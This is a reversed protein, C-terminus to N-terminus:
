PRKTPPSLVSTRLKTIEKDLHQRLSEELRQFALQLNRPLEGDEEISGRDGLREIRWSTRNPLWDLSERKLMDSVYSEVGNYDNEDKEQLYSLFFLYSWLYHEDMMHEEFDYSPGKDEYEARTFGCVFCENALKDVRGQNTNRLESFTDVIIGTIINFLIIAFWVFFSIDYIVRWNFEMGETRDVDDIVNSIDGAPVAKYLVLWFCTLPTTCTKLDGGEQWKNSPIDVAVEDYMFDGHFLVFGFTGYICASIVFVYFTWSLAVIPHIIAAVINKLDDVIFFIDLLLLCHFYQRYCGLIVILLMCLSDQLAISNLIGDYVVCYWLSCALMYRERWSPDIAENPRRFILGDGIMTRITSLCAPLFMLCFAAVAFDKFYQNESLYIQITLTFGWYMLSVLILKLAMFQQMKSRKHMSADDAEREQARRQQRLKRELVPFEALVYYGSIMMYGVLLLAVLVQNIHGQYTLTKGVKDKWLGQNVLVTVNLVVNFLYVYRKFQPLNSKLVKYANLDNGLIRLHLSQMELLYLHKM